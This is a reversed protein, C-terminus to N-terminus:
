APPAAVAEIEVVQDDYPLVTVGVVIAPPPADVFSERVAEWSVYLDAQLHEAVYVTLKAIDYLGAGHGALVKELNALCQRTQGVVDRPAVVEGDPGLPAIGATFVLPGASVVASYPFGGDFLGGPTSHRVRAMPTM